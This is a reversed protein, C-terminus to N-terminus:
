AVCLCVGSVLGGKRRRRRRGEEISVEDREATAARLEEARLNFDAEKARYEAIASLDPSM